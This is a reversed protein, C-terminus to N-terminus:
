TNQRDATGPLSQMLARLSDALAQEVARMGLANFASGAPSKCYVLYERLTQDPLEAYTMAFSGLMMERFQKLMEPRGAKFQQRLAQPNPMPQDPSALALGEQVAMLSSETIQVMQEAADTVEVLETLLKRREPTQRALVKRGLSDHDEPSLTSQETTSLLEAQRIARAGATEYWSLVPQTYREQMSRAVAQVVTAQMRDASFVHDARAKLRSMEAASLRQPAQSVGQLFYGPMTRAIEGVQEWLGSQRVLKEATAADTQAQAGTALLGVLATALIRVWKM